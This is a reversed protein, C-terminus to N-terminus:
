MMNKLINIDSLLFHTNIKLENRQSHFPCEDIRKHLAVDQVLVHWLQGYMDCGIM